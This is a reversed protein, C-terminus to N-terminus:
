RLGDTRHQIQKLRLFRIKGAPGAAKWTPLAVPLLVYQVAPGLLAIFIIAEGLVSYGAPARMLTTSPQM